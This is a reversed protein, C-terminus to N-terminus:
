SVQAAYEAACLTNGENPNEAEIIMLWGDGYPDSNVLEPKDKLAENVATVKGSLPMIAESSAKVSELEAGSVGQKFVDDVTPLSIFIVSDLQEQAFDSIGIRYTGDPEKKAWLHEKHYLRDDPFQLNSM